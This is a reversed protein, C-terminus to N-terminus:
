GGNKGSGRPSMGARHETGTNTHSTGWIQGGDHRQQNLSLCMVWHFAPLTQKPRQYKEESTPPTDPNSSGRHPSLWSGASVSWQSILIFLQANQVGPWDSALGMGSTYPHMNWYSGKQSLCYLNLNKERPGPLNRVSTSNSLRSATNSMLLRKIFLWPAQYLTSVWCILLM